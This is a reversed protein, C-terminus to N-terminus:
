LHREADQKGHLIRIVDMRDPYDRFYILHAGCLFKMAGPLVDVPRGQKVGKALAHCADRIADTYSDAQEVGWREASYHWIEGIDDEAAPSFAITKM